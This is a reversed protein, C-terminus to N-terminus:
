ENYNFINNQKLVKQMTSYSTNYVSALDQISTNQEIYLNKINQLEEKTFEIAKM